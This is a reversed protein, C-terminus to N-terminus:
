GLSQYTDMSVVVATFNTNGANDIAIGEVLHDAGENTVTVDPTVYAVGSDNDAADFHVVVSNTNWGATNPEPTITATIDPPTVDPPPPSEVTFTAASVRANGAADLITVQWTHNTPELDSSPTFTATDGSISFSSTVDDGDLLIQLSSLDLGSLADSYVATFTPRLTSVATGDSPALALSPLTKDLNVTVSLNTINGANDVATGSVIQGAAEEVVSTAFSVSVREL